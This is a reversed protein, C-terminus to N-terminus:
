RSPADLQEVLARPTLVAVDADTLDTLDRDGSVLADAGAAVTRSCSIL